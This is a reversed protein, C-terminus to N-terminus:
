TGDKRYLPPRAPRSGRVVLAMFRRQHGPCNDPDGTVRRREKRRLGQSLPPGRFRPPHHRQRLVPLAGLGALPLISLKKSPDRHADWAARHPQAAVALALALAAIIWCPASWGFRLAVSPALLGIIMGGLPVGTQKISFFLNRRAANVHRM